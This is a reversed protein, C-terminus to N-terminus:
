FKSKGGTDTHMKGNIERRMQKSFQPVDNCDWRAIMRKKSSLFKSDRREQLYIPILPVQKWTDVNGSAPQCWTEEDTGYFNLSFSIINSLVAIWSEASVRYTNLIIIEDWASPSVSPPMLLGRRVCVPTRDCGQRCKPSSVSSVRTHFVQKQVLTHFTYDVRQTVKSLISLEYM